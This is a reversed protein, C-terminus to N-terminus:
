LRLDFGAKSVKEFGIREYLRHAETRKNNSMLMLKYCGAVVSLTKAHELLRTAVGMRRFRSDVVVNEIVGFPRVGRTLNPLIALLCAGIIGGPAEAVLYTLSPNGLISDWAELAKTRDTPPDEPNLIPLLALVGTFDGTQATRVHVILSAPEIPAHLASDM